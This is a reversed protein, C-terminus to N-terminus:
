GVTQSGGSGPNVLSMSLDSGGLSHPGVGLGYGLNGPTGPTIPQGDFNEGGFTAGADIGLIAAEWSARDTFFTVAQATGSLAALLPAVLVLTTIRLQRHLKMNHQKM